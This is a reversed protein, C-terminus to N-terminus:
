TRYKIKQKYIKTIKAIEKYKNKNKQRLVFIINKLFRTISLCSSCFIVSEKLKSKVRHLAVMM